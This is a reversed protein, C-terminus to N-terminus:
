SEHERWPPTVACDKREIGSCGECRSTFAVSLYASKSYRAVGSSSSYALSNDYPLLTSTNAGFSALSSIYLRM